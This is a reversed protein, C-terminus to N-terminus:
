FEVKLENLKKLLDEDYDQEKFKVITSYTTRDIRVNGYDDVKILGTELNMKEIENFVKRNHEKGYELIIDVQKSYRKVDELACNFVFNVIPNLIWGEKNTPDILGYNVDKLKIKKCSLMSRLIMENDLIVKLFDENTYLSKVVGTELIEYTDFISLFLNTKEKEALLRAIQIPHSKKDFIYCYLDSDNIYFTNSFNNFKMGRKEVLYQIGEISDYQIIYDIISYGYEDLNFLVPDGNVDFENDIAKYEDYVHSLAVSELTRKNKNKYCNEEDSFINAFSTKLIKEMAIIYDMTFPREGKIMKSFNGKNKEALVYSEPAKGIECFIKRLLDTRTDINNKKMLQDLKDSIDLM